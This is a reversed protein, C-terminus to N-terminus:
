TSPPSVLNQWLPRGGEILRSRLAWGLGSWTPDTAVPSCLDTHLAVNDRGPYYSAGIGNLM